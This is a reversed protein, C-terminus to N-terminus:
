WIQITLIDFLVLHRKFHFLIWDLFKSEIVTWDISQVHVAKSTQLFFDSLYSVGTDRRLWIQKIWLYFDGKTCETVIKEMDLKLIEIQENSLLHSTHHPVKKGVEYHM